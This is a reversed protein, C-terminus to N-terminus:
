DKSITLLRSAEKAKGFKYWENLELLLQNWFEGVLPV